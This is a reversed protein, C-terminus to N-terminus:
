IAFRVRGNGGINFGNKVTGYHKLDTKMPGAHNSCLHEKRSDTHVSQKNSLNAVGAWQKWLALAEDAMQFM